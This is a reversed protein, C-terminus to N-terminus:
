CSRNRRGTHARPAHTATHIHLRPPLPPSRMSPICRAFVSYCTANRQRVEIDVKLVDLWCHGLMEMLTRLSAVPFLYTQGDDLEQFYSKGDFFSLGINHFTYDKSLTGQAVRQRTYSYSRRTPDFGHVEAGLAIMGDGFTIDHALGFSYVLPKSGTASPQVAATCVDWGGWKSGVKKWTCATTSLGSQGLSRAAVKAACQQKWGSELRNIESVGSQPPKQWYTGDLSTCFARNAPHMWPRAKLVGTAGNFSASCMEIRNGIGGHVQDSPPVLGGMDVHASVPADAPPCPACPACPACSLAAAGSKTARLGAAASAALAAGAFDAGARRAGGGSMWRGVIVGVLLSAVAIVPRNSRLMAHRRATNGLSGLM